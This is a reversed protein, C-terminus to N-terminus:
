ELGKRSGLTKEEFLSSVALLKRFDPLGPYHKRFIRHLIDVDRQSRWIQHLRIRLNALREWFNMHGDFTSTFDLCKPSQFVILHSLGPVFSAFHHHTIGLAAVVMTSRIGLVEFLGIGGMEYVELIGLDFKEQILFDMMRRDELLGKYVNSTANVVLDWMSWDMSMGEPAPTTWFSPRKINFKKYIFFVFAEVGHSELSRLRFLELLLLDEEGESKFSWFTSCQRRNHSVTGDSSHRQLFLSPSPFSWTTDM